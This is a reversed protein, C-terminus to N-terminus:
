FSLGREHRLTNHQRNGIFFKCETLHCILFHPSRLVFPLIQMLIYFARWSIFMCIQCCIGVAYSAIILEQSFLNKHGSVVVVVVKGVPINLITNLASCTEYRFGCTETSRTIWGTDSCYTGTAILRRQILVVSCESAVAVQFPRWSATTPAAFFTVISLLEIKVSWRHCNYCFLHLFAEYSNCFQWLIILKNQIQKTLKTHVRGTSVCQWRVCCVSM